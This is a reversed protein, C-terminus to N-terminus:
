EYYLLNDNAYGGVTIGTYIFRPFCAPVQREPAVRDVCRNYWVFGTKDANAGKKDVEFVGDM